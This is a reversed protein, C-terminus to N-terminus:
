CAIGRGPCSHILPLRYSSPSPHSTDEAPVSTPLHRSAAHLWLVIRSSMMMIVSQGGPLRGWPLPETCLRHCRPGQMLRLCDMMYSGASLITERGGQGVVHPIYPGAICTM